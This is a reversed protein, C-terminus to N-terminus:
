NKCTWENREKLKAEIMEAFEGPKKTANWLVKREATTLGKWDKRDGRVEIEGVAAQDVENM